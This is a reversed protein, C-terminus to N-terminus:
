SGTHCIKNFKCLKCQFWLPSSSIKPPPIQAEAILRAKARLGLYHEEDFGIREDMMESTDKNIVVVFGEYIEAMGMYAQLQSYYRPYWKKLGKKIFIKFSSDKATKIEIIARPKLLLADYTGKFFPLEADVCSGLGETSQVHFGAGKILDIVLGELRKGIAFTRQLILSNPEGEFGKYEYWIKRSCEDGILSAGIYARREDQMVPMSEIKKTLVGTKM